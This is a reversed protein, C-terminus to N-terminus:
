PTRVAEGSKRGAKNYTFLVRLVNIPGGPACAFWQSVDHESAQFPLGVLRVCSSVQREGVGSDRLHDSGSDSGSESDSDNGSGSGSGSCSGSSRRRPRLRRGLNDVNEKTAQKEQLARATNAIFTVCNPVGQSISTLIAHSASSM